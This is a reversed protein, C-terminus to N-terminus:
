TGSSSFAKVAAFATGIALGSGCKMRMWDQHALISGCAFLNDFVPDGDKGLPRFSDDVEIGARNAPHGRLDVFEKRHWETREGPQSVPLDFIAERIGDMDARLGRAWFRGSALIVGRARIWTDARKRGIGLLFNGSDDREWRIVREPFCFTVGMASLGRTFTDNLRLGPVSPPMTPIEFVRAGLERSLDRVILDSREMGLVAPVGVAEAGNLRPKLEEALIELNEASEMDRAMVDGPILGAGLGTHRLRLKDWTVAPWRGRLSRGIQSASFDNFGEFGVILCPLGKKLAKVGDWMTRPIYYSYKSTGLPTIMESNKEGDRLYPVGEQGLFRVVREIADRLVEMDLRAYPHHPIDATVAEVAAWPDEWREGSDVPHVGMLDLYGSAFLLGGAGGIQATAIGRNAAFVAAAMGALGSGVIALQFEQTDPAKM